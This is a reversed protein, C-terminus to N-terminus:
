CFLLYMSEIGTKIPAEDTSFICKPWKMKVAKRLSKAEKYVIYAVKFGQGSLFRYNCYLFVLYFIFHAVKLKKKPFFKSGEDEAQGSSPKEQFTVSVVEGAESFVRSM